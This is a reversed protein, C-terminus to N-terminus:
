RPSCWGPPTRWSPTESARTASRRVERLGHVASTSVLNDATISVGDGVDIPPAGELMYSLAVPDIALVGDVTTGTRLRYMEAFLRAATPFDPTFNVDQPYQALEPGYLDPREGTLEAVPPDFPGLTRSAAGQDIISIKGQDARVVAFSGFIGGTARPEAPNQFAVLYTRPGDAGLMPPLLRAVRAGPETVDAAQDLKRWLTLVADGVPQVVASRDIAAM